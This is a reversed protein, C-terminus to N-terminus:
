LKELFSKLLFQPSIVSQFIMKENLGMGLLFWLLPIKPGKKLRVWMCFDKDLSIRVWTGKLCIIDAYFRQLIRSPKSAWKNPYIEYFHPLFYVGPSRVLQNIIVRAAGNLLFHGRQTMLPLQAILVWKLFIRKRKKDTYQVPIYLKSVYSKKFFIAQQVSYDPKTLCFYEPYFVLEVNKNKLSNLKSFEELIGKKLFNLFSERQIELFDPLFYRHTPM